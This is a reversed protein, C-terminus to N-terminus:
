FEIIWNLSRTVVRLSAKVEAFLILFFVAKLVQQRRNPRYLSTASAHSLNIGTTSSNYDFLSFQSFYSSGEFFVTLKYPVSLSENLV